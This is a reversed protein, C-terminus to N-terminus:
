VSGRGDRMWFGLVGETSNAVMNWGRKGVAILDGNRGAAREERQIRVTAASLGITLAFLPDLTRKM